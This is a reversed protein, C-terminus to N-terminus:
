LYMTSRLREYAYGSLDYLDLDSLACRRHPGDKMKITLIHNGSM